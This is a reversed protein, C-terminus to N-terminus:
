QLIYGFLQQHVEYHIYMYKSSLAQSPSYLDDTFISIQGLGRFEDCTILQEVRYPKFLAINDYPM